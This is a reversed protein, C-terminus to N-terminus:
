TNGRLRNIEAYTPVWKRTQPSWLPPLPPAALRDRVGIILPDSM